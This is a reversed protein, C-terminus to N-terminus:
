LLDIFLNCCLCMEYLKEKGTSTEKSSAPAPVGRRWEKYELYM